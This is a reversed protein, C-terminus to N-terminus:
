MPSNDSSGSLDNSNLGLIVSSSLTDLSTLAICNWYDWLQSTVPKIMFVRPARATKTKHLYQLNTENKDAVISKIVFNYM